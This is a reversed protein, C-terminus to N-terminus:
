DHRYFEAYTFGGRANSAASANPLQGAETLAGRVRNLAIELDKISRYEVRKGDYQVVQEGSAYAAELAALQTLTFAM